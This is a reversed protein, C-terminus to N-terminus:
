RVREVDVRGVGPLGIVRAAGQALDLSRGRVFPGRDNIRVVVCREGRCVRLVTGFPLSRHAATMGSPRFTEGSATRHGSEAGYYSAVMTEAHSAAAGFLLLAVVWAMLILWIRLAHM